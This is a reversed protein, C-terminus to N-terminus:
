RKGAPGNGSGRHRRMVKITRSRAPSVSNQHAIKENGRGRRDAMAQFLVARVANIHAAVADLKDLLQALQKPTLAVDAM